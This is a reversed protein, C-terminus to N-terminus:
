ISTLVNGKSSKKAKQRMGIKQELIKERGCDKRRKWLWESVCALVSCFTRFVRIMMRKKSATNKNIFYIM